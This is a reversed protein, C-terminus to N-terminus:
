AAYPKLWDIVADVLEDESSEPGIDPSADWAFVRALVAGVPVEVPLKQRSDSIFGFIACRRCNFGTAFAVVQYLSERVWEGRLIRYKVDGVAVGSGFVLDPNISLGTGGLLRRQKRVDTDGLRKALINRVADEILEPTRLLFSRGSLAGLHATVGGAKLLIKALPIVKGYSATLRTLSARGDHSHLHGVNEMRLVVSRARRRVDPVIEASGAILQCAAKVIRNLASDENLEEFECFAVTRGSHVALTTAVAELRGRVELLEDYVENYDSRLGRRLLAEAEAVCWLALLSPYDAAQSVSAVGSAIRPALTSRRVLYSFHAESIKPLVRIQLEGLSVVGVVDRFTVAYKEGLPNVEIVSRGSPTESSGWWSQSSALEKGLARLVQVQRQSLELEARCSEVVTTERPM